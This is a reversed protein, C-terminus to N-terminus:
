INIEGCSRMTMLLMRSQAGDLCVAGGILTGGLLLPCRVSSLLSGFWTQHPATLIRSSALDEREFNLIKPMLETRNLERTVLKSLENLVSRLVRAM